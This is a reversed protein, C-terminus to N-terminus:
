TLRTREPCLHDGMIPALQFTLGHKLQLGSSCIPM